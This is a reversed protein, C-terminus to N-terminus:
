AAAAAVANAAPAASNPQQLLLLSPVAPLELDLEAARRDVALVDLEAEPLAQRAKQARAALEIRRPADAAAIAENELLAVFFAAVRYSKARQEFTERLAHIERDIALLRSDATRIVEAHVNLQGDIGALRAADARADISDSASAIAQAREGQLESIRKQRDAVSQSKTTREALLASVQRALEECQAKAAKALDGADLRERIGAIRKAAREKAHAVQYLKGRADTAARQLLNGQQIREQNHPQSLPGSEQPARAVAQRHQEVADDANQVALECGALDIQAVEQELQSLEHALAEVHSQVITKSPM